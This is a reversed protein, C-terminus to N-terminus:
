VFTKWYHSLLDLKCQCCKCSASPSVLLSVLQRILAFNFNANCCNMVDNILCPSGRERSYFLQRHNTCHPSVM